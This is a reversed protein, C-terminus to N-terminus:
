SAAQKPLEYYYTTTFDLRQPGFGEQYLTISDEDAISVMIDLAVMMTDARMLADKAVSVNFKYGYKGELYQEMTAKVDNISTNVATADYAELSALGANSGLGCQFSYKLFETANGGAAVCEAGLKGKLSNLIPEDLVRSQNEFLNRGARLLGFYSSSVTRNFSGETEVTVKPNKQYKIVFRKSGSVTIKKDDHSIDLNTADWLVSMNRFNDITSLEDVDTALDDEYKGVLDEMKPSDVTWKAFGGGEAGLSTLRLASFGAASDITRKLEEAAFQTAYVYRSSSAITVRKHYEVSKDLVFLVTVMIIIVIGLIFATAGKMRMREM